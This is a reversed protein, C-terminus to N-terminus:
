DKLGRFTICVEELKRLMIRAGVYYERNGLLNFSSILLELILGRSKRSANHLSCRLAYNSIKWTITQSNKKYNQTAHSPAKKRLKTSNVIKHITICICM